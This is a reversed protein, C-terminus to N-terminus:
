VRQLAAADSFNAGRENPDILAQVDMLGRAKAALSWLDPHQNSPQLLLQKQPDLSPPNGAKFEGIVLKPPVETSRPRWLVFAEKKLDFLHTTVSDPTRVNKIEPANSNKTAAEL